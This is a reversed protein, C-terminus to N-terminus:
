ESRTNHPADNRSSSLPNCISSNPSTPPNLAPSATVPMHRSLFCSSAISALLFFTWLITSVVIHGIFLRRANKSLYREWGPLNTDQGFAVKEIRKMYKVIYRIHIMFMITRVACAIVVCPGIFWIFPFSTVADKHVLLWAYVAGVGVSAALEAHSMERMDQMVEDRLMKYQDLHSLQSDMASDGKLKLFGVGKNRRRLSM